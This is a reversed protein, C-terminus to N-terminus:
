YFKNCEPTTSFKKLPACSLLGRGRKKSLERQERCREFGDNNVCAFHREICDYILYMGSKYVESIRKTMREYYDDLY